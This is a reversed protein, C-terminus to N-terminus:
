HQLPQSHHFGADSTSVYLLHLSIFSDLSGHYGVYQSENIVLCSSVGTSTCVYEADDSVGAVVLDGSAVLRSGSTIMPQPHLSHPSHPSPLQGSIHPLRHLRRALYQVPGYLRIQLPLPLM